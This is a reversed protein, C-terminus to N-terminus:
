FRIFVPHLAAQRRKMLMDLHIELEPSASGRPKSSEINRVTTEIERDIKSVSRYPRFLITDSSTRSTIM